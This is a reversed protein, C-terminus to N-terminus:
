RHVVIYFKDDAIFCDVLFEKTGQNSFIISQEGDFSVRKLENIKSTIVKYYIGTEFIMFGGYVDLKREDIEIEACDSGDPRIKFISFREDFDHQYDGGYMYYIFGNHPGAAIQRHKYEEIVIEDDGSGDAKVRRMECGVRYYLYEGYVFYPSSGFSYNAKEVLVMKETGDMNSRYINNKGFEKIELYLFGDDRIFSVVDSAIVHRESGDTKIRSLTSAAYPPGTTYSGTVYIWEGSIFFSRADSALEVKESGDPRMRYLISSETTVICGRYSYTEIICFRWGDHYKSRAVSGNVVKKRDSGDLRMCYLGESSVSFYVLEESYYLFREGKQMTIKEYGEALYSQACGSLSAVFFSLCLALAVFLSINKIKSKIM